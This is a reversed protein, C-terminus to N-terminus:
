QTRAAVRKAGALVLAAVMARPDDLVTMTGAGEGIDAGARLGAYCGAREPGHSRQVSRV